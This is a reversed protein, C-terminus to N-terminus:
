LQSVLGTLLITLTHCWYMHSDKNIYNHHALTPRYELLVKREDTMEIQSAYYHHESDLPALAAEGLREKLVPLKEKSRFRCSMQSSSFHLHYFLQKSNKEKASAM